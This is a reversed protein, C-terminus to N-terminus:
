CSLSDLPWDKTSWNSVPFDTRYLVLLEELRALRDADDTMAKAAMVFVPMASAALPRFQSAQEALEMVEDILTVKELELAGPDGVGFMSLAWNAMLGLLLLTGYATQRRAQIQRARLPPELASVASLLAKAKALDSRLVEHTSRIAPLNGQVDRTFGAIAALAPIQLCEINAAEYSRPRSPRAIPPPDSAAWLRPDLKIKHNGLSELLVIFLLTNAVEAEFEGQWNQGAVATNLMHAIAEGHSPYFDGGRGIWGQCIMILYVACLTEVSGATEPDDLSTRLCGLAEGYAKYMHPTYQHTHVSPFSTTLARVSADLARNKGLRCPLETFFPGYIRLDFCVDTVQLASIFHSADLTAQNSPARTTLQMSSESGVASSSGAQAAPPTPQSNRDLAAMFKYRREGSGICPIGLRACRSCLPTLQDCKKKQQRCADCGRSSPVGPM